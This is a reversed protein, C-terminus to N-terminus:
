PRAVPELDRRRIFGSEPGIRIARWTGTTGLPVVEVGKKLTRIVPYETGPGSRMRTTAVVAVTTEPKLGDARRIRASIREDLAQIGPCGALLVLVFFGLEKLRNMTFCGMFPSM